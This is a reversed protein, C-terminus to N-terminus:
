KAGLLQLQKVPNVMARMRKQSKWAVNEHSTRTLKKLFFRVYLYNNYLQYYKLIKIKSQIPRINHGRFNDLFRNEGLM